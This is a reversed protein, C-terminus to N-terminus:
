SSLRRVAVDYYQKEKEISIQKWSGSHKFLCNYFDWWRLKRVYVNVIELEDGRYQFHRSIVKYNKCKFLISDGKNPIQDISKKHIM